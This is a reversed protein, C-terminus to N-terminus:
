KLEEPPRQTAKLFLERPFAALDNTWGPPGNVEPSFHLAALTEKLGPGPKVKSLMTEWEATQSENLSGQWLCYDVLDGGSVVVRGFHNSQFSVDPQSWNAYCLVPLHVANTTEIQATWVVENNTSDWKGNTMVPEVPLSLEVRLSESADDFIDFRVGAAQSALDLITDRVEPKQANPNSRQEKEWAQMRERYFATTVVYRELSKIATDNNALFALPEVPTEGLGMERMVVKRILRWGELENDQGFARWLAPLDGIDFYGREALYQGIRYVQSEWRKQEEQGETPVQFESSVYYGLNKLDHRFDVDLFRRLQEYHAEHGLEMQSWGIFIDTLKDAAKARDAALSQLDDNGRFREVYFGAAGLSTAINTYSGSGGVDNPLRGAFDGQILHEKGASRMAGPPYCREIAALRNSPFPESRSPGGNDTRAFTLERHLVRGHPTMRVTYENSPCGTVAVALVGLSLRCFFKKM